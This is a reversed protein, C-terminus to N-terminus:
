VNQMYIFHPRLRKHSKSHLSKKNKIKKLVIVQKAELEGRGKGGAAMTTHEVHIELHIGRSTRVWQDPPFM